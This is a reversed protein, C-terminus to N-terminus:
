CHRHPTGRSLVSGGETSAEYGPRSVGANTVQLVLM